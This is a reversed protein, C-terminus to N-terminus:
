QSGTIMNVASKIVAPTSSTSAIGCIRSLDFDNLIKRVTEIINGHHFEYAIKVVEKKLDM